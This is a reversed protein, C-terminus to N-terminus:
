GVDASSGPVEFEAALFAKAKAIADEWDRPDTYLPKTNLRKSPKERFFQRLRFVNTRERRNHRTWEAAKKFGLEDYLRWAALYKLAEKYRDPSDPNQKHIPKKYYKKFLKKNTESGLWRSFAKEMADKGEAYNFPLVVYKIENDGVIAPYQDPHKKWERADSAAQEKVEDTPTDGHLYDLIAEQEDISWRNNLPAPKRTVVLRKDWSDLSSELLARIRAENNKRGKSRKTKV